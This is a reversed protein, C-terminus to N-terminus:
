HRRLSFSFTSGENPTSSVNIEGGLSNVLKKVTALGIGSGPNGERDNVDLTTFLEFIQDAKEAPFGDGNDVVEFLYFDPTERFNVQVKRQEKSNYKLSNSILNLLIQTLAAKNINQLNSHPYKIEVDDAVDYLQAIEKMIQHLDVNENAKELIHESRYFSLIGDVYHRLSYSSEVLYNLYQLTEENLKDKNEERLLETLSIINALPSKIDHSVLSAFKELETYKQKLRTQIVRFHNNQKRFELLNVLQRAIIQLSKQQFETLDREKEDFIGLVGISFGNNNKVPVGTYFKYEKKYLKAVNEFLKSCESFNVSFIDQGSDITAQSFSNKREVEQFENGSNSKFWITDVDIIGLFATSVECISAALFILEDYDKDQSSNLIDYESLIAVRLTETIRTTDEM